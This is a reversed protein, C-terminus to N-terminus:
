RAPPASRADGSSSSCAACPARAGQLLALVAAVVVLGGVRGELQQQALLGLLVLREEPELAEADEDLLALVALDDGLGRDLDPDIALAVQPGGLPVAGDVREVLRQAARDDVAVRVQGVDLEGVVLDADEVLM